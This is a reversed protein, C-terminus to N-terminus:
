PTLSFIKDICEILKKADKEDPKVPFQMLVGLGEFLDHFDKHALSSVPACNIMPNIMIAKEVLEKADMDELTEDTILLDIKRQDECLALAAKGSDVRQIKFDSNELIPEIASFVRGDRAALVAQKM